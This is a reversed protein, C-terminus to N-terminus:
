NKNKEARALNKKAIKFEPDIEVAKEYMKVAKKIDNRQECVYGTNNCANAEKATKKFMEMAQDDKGLMGYAIGLNNITRSCGPNLSIGKKFNEAACAFDSGSMLSFGLNNYFKYVAPNLKIAKKYCAIAKEHRGCLDYSVGLGDHAYSYAPCLEVATKFELVAKTYEDKGRFCLGKLYFIEPNKKNNKEAAELQVLAIDYFKQNVLNRALELYNPHANKEEEYKLANLAARNKIADKKILNDMKAENFAACGSCFLVSCFFLTICGFVFSIDKKSCLM